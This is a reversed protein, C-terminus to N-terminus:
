KRPLLSIEKGVIVNGRSDLAGQDILQQTYYAVDGDEGWLSNGTDPLKGDKQLNRIVQGFTDGKKYTYKVANDNAKNAADYEQKMKRLLDLLPQAPDKSKKTNSQQSGDATRNFIFQNRSKVSSDTIPLAVGFGQGEAPYYQKPAMSTGQISTSRLSNIFDNNM